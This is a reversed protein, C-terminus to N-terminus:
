ETRGRLSAILEKDINLIRDAADLVNGDPVFPKIEVNKSLVKVIHGIAVIRANRKDNAPIIKWRAGETSTRELMEEVAEVYADWKEHNRFDEYTLKWRKYPDRLRREFRQLQVDPTIHFFLKVLHMGDDLLMQEFNRIEEYAHRWRQEPVLGEVREVLVRGYWSRDFVSIAGNPPLREMFRLLYHRNMYYNRPAGIPWVKFGRPDLATSMRRITGGKGAADWGELVVVAKDGTFLYHQQIRSLNFRLDKLASHYASKGLKHTMDTAALSPHSPM